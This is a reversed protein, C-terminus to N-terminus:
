KFYNIFTELFIVNYLIVNYLIVGYRSRFVIPAYVGAFSFPNFHILIQKIRKFEHFHISYISISQIRASKLIRLKINSFFFM